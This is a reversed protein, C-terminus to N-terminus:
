GEEVRGLGVWGDGGWVLGDWGFHDFYGFVADDVQVDHRAHLVLVDGVLDICGPAHKGKGEGGM